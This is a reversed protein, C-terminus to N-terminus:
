SKDTHRVFAAITSLFQKLDNFVSSVKLNLYLKTWCVCDWAARNVELLEKFVDLIMETALEGARKVNDWLIALTQRWTFM